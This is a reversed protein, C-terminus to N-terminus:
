FYLSLLIGGLLLVAVKLLGQASMLLRLHSLHPLSQAGEYRFMLLAVIYSDDSGDCANASGQSFSEKASTARFRSCCLRVGIWGRTCVQDCLHIINNIDEESVETGMSIEAAAKM